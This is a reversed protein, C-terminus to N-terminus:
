EGYALMSKLGGRRQRVGKSAPPVLMEVPLGQAELVDVGGGRRAAHSGWEELEGKPVGAGELIKRFRVNFETGSMKFYQRPDANERLWAMWPHWCLLPDGACVCWRSLASPEPKGKRRLGTIRLEDEGEELRAECAQALLESPVRLGFAYALNLGAGIEFDGKKVAEQLCSRLLDRRLRKKAKRPPAAKATGARVAKLYADRDGVWPKGSLVHLDKWAALWGRLTSEHNVLASVRRVLILDAPVPSRGM